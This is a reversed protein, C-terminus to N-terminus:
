DLKRRENEANYAYIETYMCNSIIYANQFAPVFNRIYLFMKHVFMEM